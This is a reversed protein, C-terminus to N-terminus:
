VEIHVEGNKRQAIYMSLTRNLTEGFGENELSRVEQNEFV